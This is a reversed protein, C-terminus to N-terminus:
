AAGGAAWLRRWKVRERLMTWGGITVAALIMIMLSPVLLYRDIISLGAIGVAFFTAIGTILLAFVMITRKPTVLLALVTGVTAGYVVPTKDLSNLFARTAHPVQLVSKTRGLEEALGNTHQLSFLPHGTVAADLAVWILPGAATYAAWKIRQSWTAPPFMW